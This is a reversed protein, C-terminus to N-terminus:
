VPQGETPPTDPQTNKSVELAALCIALPATAATAEHEYLPFQWDDENLMMFSFRATWESADGDFFMGFDWAEWGDRNATLKEVVLWADAIDNLPDRAPRWRVPKDDDSEFGHDTGIEAEWWGGHSPHPHTTVWNSGKFLDRYGDRLERASVASPKAEMFETIRLLINWSSEPAEMRDAM